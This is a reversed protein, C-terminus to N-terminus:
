VLSANIDFSQVTSKKGFTQVPKGENTSILLVLCPLLCLDVCYM